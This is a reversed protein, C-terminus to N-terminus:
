TKQVTTYVCVCVCLCLTVSCKILLRNRHFEKRWMDLRTIIKPGLFLRWFLVLNSISYKNMSNWVSLQPSIAAGRWEGFFVIVSHTSFLSILQHELVIIGGATIKNIREHTPFQTWCAKQGYLSDLLGWWVMAMLQELTNFDVKAWFTIKASLLAFNIMHPRACM